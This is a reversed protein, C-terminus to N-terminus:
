WLLDALAELRPFLMYKLHEENDIYETWLNAQGGLIHGASNSSLGPPVVQFAKVNELTLVAPFSPPEGETAQAYDFYCHQKPCMVVDFGRQAALIGREPSRWAMVIVDKELDGIDLIEDWGIARKGKASVHRVLKRFLFGHLEEPRRLQEAQMRSRCDPCNKWRTTPCEDGGLHIYPGPFLEMVEDLMTYLFAFTEDKGPCFVDEFIGWTGPVALEKGRCSYEPYAALAAMSHGPLDIEPIVTIRREGAFRVIERIEETTYFGGYRSGDPETRYGGIETLRPYQPIEIRWGQDDTLHWHFRNLKLQAMRDLLRRIVDPPFFHRSVDLHLGRWSYAPSDIIEAASIM